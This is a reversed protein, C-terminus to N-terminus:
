ATYCLEFGPLEGRDMAHELAEALQALRDPVPGSTLNDFYGKLRDGFPEDGAAVLALGAEVGSQQLALM